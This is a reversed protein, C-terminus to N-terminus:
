ARERETERAGAMKSQCQTDTFVNLRRQILFGQTLPSPPLVSLSFFLGSLAHGGEREREGSTGSARLARRQKSKFSLHKSHRRHEFHAARDCIHAGCCPYVCVAWEKSPESIVSVGQVAAPHLELTHPQFSHEIGGGKLEEKHIKLLQMGAPKQKPPPSSAALQITTGRKAVWVGQSSNFSWRPSLDSHASGSCMSLGQGRHRWVVEPSASWSRQGRVQGLM